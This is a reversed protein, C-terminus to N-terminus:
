ETHVAKMMAAGRVLGKLFEMVMRPEMRDSLEHKHDATFVRPKGYAYEVSVEIGFEEKLIKEMERFDNDTTRAM